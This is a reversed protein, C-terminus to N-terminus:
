HIFPGSYSFDFDSGERAVKSGNKKNDLEYVVLVLKKPNREVDGGMSDNSVTFAVGDEIAAKIANSVAPRFIRVDQYFLQIDIAQVMIKKPM